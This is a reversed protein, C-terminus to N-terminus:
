SAARYCIWAQCGCEAKTSILLVLRERGSIDFCDHPKVCCRDFEIHLGNNRIAESHIRYRKKNKYNVDVIKNQTM